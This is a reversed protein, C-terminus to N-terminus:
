VSESAPMEVQPQKMDGLVTDSEPGTFISEPQQSEPSPTPVEVPPSPAAAAPTRPPTQV